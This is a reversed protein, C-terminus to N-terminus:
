STGFFSKVAAFCFPAVLTGHYAEAVALAGGDTAGQSVAAAAVLAKAQAFDTKLTAYPDGSPAPSELDLVSTSTSAPASSAWYGQMLQTNLWFVTPDLDGGCLLVPATPVWNRLDNMQLARRWPIGSTAAALGTTNTPFGGDPNAQADELYSLRYSNKLLNGTGFGLAFVAALSAPMTPPTIDAFAPAPPTSSFLAFEPLKGQAYLQSRPTTTPLLSDIGSAYQAEFVDSANAYINGYARQYATLLLTSAVTADANVEGYFVADVFAGLAYPGSMPASATVKMGASQMARHTAMAVYGGQSYGTIFLQGNDKTLTASVFPLATRAATLADIMDKSEQDAILYPHYDLTSTDYGAYNPAVVIYGHSAFLAALFLLETNQLNAINFARDTTTGHAYLIIPRAGTCNAGLGTPVMLAGSATTAENAGGVTTYKIHYLLIDCVPTGSLSLLQQNTLINLELLLSPATVTSLLEPPSQLLMGRQPSTHDGSDSM